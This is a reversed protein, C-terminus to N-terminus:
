HSPQFSAISLKHQKGMRVFEELPAYLAAGASSHLEGRNCIHFSYYEYANLSRTFGSKEFLSKKLDRTLILKSMSFVLCRSRNGNHFSPLAVASVERKRIEGEMPSADQGRREQSSLLSRYTGRIM